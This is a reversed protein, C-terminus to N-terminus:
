GIQAQLLTYEQPFSIIHNQIHKTEQEHTQQTNLIVGERVSESSLESRDQQNRRPVLIRM